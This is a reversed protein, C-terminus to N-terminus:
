IYQLEAPTKVKDPISANNFFKIVEHKLFFSELQEFDLKNSSYYKSEITIVADLDKTVAIDIILLRNSEEIKFDSQKGKVIQCAPFLEKILEEKFYIFLNDGKYYNLEKSVDDLKKNLM